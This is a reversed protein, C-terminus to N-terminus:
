CRRLRAEKHPQESSTRSLITEYCPRCPHYIAHCLICYEFGCSDFGCQGKQYLIDELSTRKCKPCKSCKYERDPQLPGFLQFNIAESKVVMKEDLQVRQQNASGTFKLPKTIKRKRKKVMQYDNEKNEDKNDLRHQRKRPRLEYPERSFDPRKRKRLNTSRMMNSREPFMMKSLRNPSPVIPMYMAIPLLHDDKSNLPLEIKQKSTRNAKPSRSLHLVVITNLLSKASRMRTSTIKNRGSNRHANANM